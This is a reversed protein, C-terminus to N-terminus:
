KKEILLGVCSLCAPLHKCTRVETEEFLPLAREVVIGASPRASFVTRYRLWVRRCCPRRSRPRRDWLAEQTACPNLLGASARDRCPSSLCPATSLHRQALAVVAPPVACGPWGPRAHRWGRGM